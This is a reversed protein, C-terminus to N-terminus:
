WDAIQTDVYRLRGHLWTKMRSLEYDINGSAWGQKWVSYDRAHSDRIANAYDDTYKILKQYSDAKFANWKQKFLSKMAPDEMLRSFFVSGKSGDNWFLPTNYVTFHKNNFPYGFGWDFDWIPGMRYKEGAKKYLYTSKPHNIETNLTLEYVIMYNIFAEADFYDLYNNGPFAPDFIADELIDFDNKIQNLQATADAAPMKGLDPHQIMVPLQYRSSVFKYDEDFYTDLELLVGGEGVDIRNTEVEKHETFMYNGIYVGNLTVDVPIMHHTFPMGLLRGAKMAVANCMLSEDLYNALLVWDKEASLGLLSAKTDLKLRYPKKPYNHWTSNGRGRVSTRGEYDDYAGSGDIRVTAAVYDKKSDIPAGGDTTIYIHPIAERVEPVLTVSVSYSKETGNAARIVYVLDQTFDNQTVGSEQRIGNVFVGIGKFTFSAILANASVEEPVSIRIQDGQLDAMITSSLFASNLDNRISFEIFEKEGSREPVVPTNIKTCNTLLFATFLLMLFNRSTM